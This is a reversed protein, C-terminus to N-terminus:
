GNVCADGKTNKIISIYQNNFVPENGYEILKQIYEMNKQMLDQNNGVGFVWYDFDCVEFKSTRIEELHWYVKESKSNNLRVAHNLAGTFAGVKFETPLEEFKILDEEKLLYVKRQAPLYSSQGFFGYFFLFDADEDTNEKMWKYAIQHNPESLSSESVQFPYSSSFFVLLIVAAIFFTLGKKHLFRNAYSLIYYVPLGFLMSVYVPWFFRFKMVSAGFLFYNSFCILFLYASAIFPYNKKKLFLGLSFGMGIIVGVVWGLSAYTPVIIGHGTSKVIKGLGSTIFSGSGSLVDWSIITTYLYYASFLLSLGAIKSWRISENRLNLEKKKIRWILVIGVFLFVFHVIRLYSYLLGTILITSIAVSGKQLPEELYFFIAALFIIGSIFSWIGWTFATNFPFSFILFCPALSLMAVYKNYRRILLYFCMISFYAYFMLMIQISDYISLGSFYSVASEGIPRLPPLFFLAGELDYTMFKGVFRIQESGKAYSSFSSYQFADNAFYNLPYENRVEYDLLTGVGFYLFLISFLLIIITEYKNKILM